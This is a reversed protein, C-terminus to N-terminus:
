NVETNGGVRLIGNMLKEIEEPSYNQTAIMQKIIKLKEKSLEFNESMDNYDQGDGYSVLPTFHKVKEEKVPVIELDDTNGEEPVMFGRSNDKLYEGMDDNVSDMMTGMEHMKIFREMDFGLSMAEQFLATFQGDNIITLAPHDDDVDDDHRLDKASNHGADFIRWTGQKDRHVYYRKAFNPKMSDFTM